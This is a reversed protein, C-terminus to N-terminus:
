LEIQKELRPMEWIDIPADTFSLRWNRYAESQWIPDQKLIYTPKRSKRKKPSKYEPRLSDFGNISLWCVRSVVKIFGAPNQLEGKERMFEMRGLAQGVAKRGYKDVLQRAEVEQLNGTTLYVKQALWEDPDDPLPKKYFRVSRKLPKTQENLLEPKPTNKPFSVLENVPIHSQIPLSQTPVVVEHSLLSYDPKVWAREFQVFSEQPEILRKPMAEQEYWYFNVSRKMLWVSHKQKLLKKAIEPKPPYRKGQEDQLFYPQMDFGARKAGYQTPIQNLNSWDIRIEELVQRSQINERKLYRQLTRESVNMRDGLWPQSYKGPRRKILERNLAARYTATSQIDPLTIPDSGINDIRMLKCLYATEPVIYRSAPRGPTKDRETAQVFFCNKTTATAVAFDAVAHPPNRLSPSIAFKLAKRVSPRGVGHECLLELVEREAVTDGAAKGTLLLGEYVRLFAAGDPEQLLAERLANPIYSADGRKTDRQKRPRPPKTFVSRITREAEAHRQQYREIRHPHTPQQHAHIPALVAIVDAVGYGEDRMYCGTRFLAENRSDLERVLFQYIHIFDDPSKADAALHSLEPAIQQQIGFETLFGDFEAESLSYLPAENVVQWEGGAIQSGAGVAYSGAAKLDGGGLTTTSVPFGAQLYVHLTKRLGSQVLYTELLHPYKQIFEAQIEIDDFDIVILNSIGGCVVGYATYGESIWTEVQRETAQRAQYKKWAMPPRKGYLPHKGGLLPIVSWGRQHADLAYTLTNSEARLRTSRLEAQVSTM